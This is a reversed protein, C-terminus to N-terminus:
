FEGSTITLYVYRATQLLEIMKRIQRYKLLYLVRNGSM